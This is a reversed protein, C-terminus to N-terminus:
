IFLNFDSLISKDIPRTHIRRTTEIVTLIQCIGVRVQEIFLKSTKILKTCIITKPIPVM